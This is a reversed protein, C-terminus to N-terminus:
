NCKIIDDYKSANAPDSKKLLEIVKTKESTLAKCYINIIEASKSNYWIKALYSNPSVSWVKNILQICETVVLRAEDMSKTMRDLGKVHYKYYAERMPKFRDNLLNEVLWYRNKNTRDRPSWGSLGSVSQAANVIENAKLFYKTGGELAYSDADLGLVMFCYFALLSTLDNLYAGERYEMVQFSTYNFKFDVDELNLLATNYNTGYIPRTSQVMATADFVEPQNPDWKRIQLTLTWEIREEMRLNEQGWKKNNVFENISQKLNDFLQTNATQVQNYLVQVKCTFDQAQVCQAGYIGLIFFLIRKM